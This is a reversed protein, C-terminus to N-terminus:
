SFSATNRGWHVECLKRAANNMEAEKYIKEEQAASCSRGTSVGGTLRMLPSNVREGHVARGVCLGEESLQTGECCLEVCGDYMIEPNFHHPHWCYKPLSNLIRFNEQHSVNEKREQVEANMVIRHVGVFTKLIFGLSKCCM